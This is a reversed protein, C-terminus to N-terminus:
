IKITDQHMTYSWLMNTDNYYWMMVNQIANYGIVDYCIINIVDYCATDDKLMNYWTTKNWIMDYWKPDYPM